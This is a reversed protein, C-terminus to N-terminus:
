TTDEDPQPSGAGAAAAASVVELGGDPAEATSRLRLYNIGDAARMPRVTVSPGGVVTLRARGAPLDWAFRLEHWTGPELVCRALGAPLARPGLARMGTTDGEDAAVPTAGMRATLAVGLVADLSDEPDFPVSYHDTLLLLAGGFGPRARLRVQLRGRAALPFNWVAAAPWGAETRALALLPGGEPGGAPRFTVGRCGFVSWEDEAPGGEAAPWGHETEALWAPDLRVICVRGAGQGTTVLVSGDPAVAPYPYATGHDGGPPPPQDRHPDRAVERHGSWTRGDDVSLAGHLVHRGGHAYPFRRCENWLLVLRGDPLRVLGAPSDSSILQTPRPHSWCAGDASLSEYFRGLQTRILMWVSGDQREVAVPECGGYLGISPTQVKLESPSTSWTDGGDDSYVVTSTFQGAYWFADLGEGREAWTRRTLFSFPLVIRGARTQLVSNLAGTYGQWIRRPARWRRRGGETRGHWIDLHREYLSAVRVEGEGSPDRFVGTGGDNLLFIHLEGAGDVLVECGGWHGPAAPLPLLPEPGSWTQGGDASRRCAVEQAGGLWRVFLGLLVGDPLAALRPREDFRALIVPRQSM